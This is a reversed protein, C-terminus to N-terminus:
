IIKFGDLVSTPNWGLLKRAKFDNFTLDSTIKNLRDSNIPSKTGIVDGIRAMLVALAYPINYPKKRDLQNAINFSLENFAPHYTDTLNYVGGISAVTPILKAVDEALVMSKKAKGGGINFYYGKQIGRIMAGLNGIPNVGALLPLRLISCIVKNEICWKKIVEEAQIKSLGYPDKAM